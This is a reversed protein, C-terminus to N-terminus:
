TASIGHLTPVPDPRSRGTSALETVARHFAALEEARVHGTRPRPKHWSGKLKVPNPPLSNDQSLYIVNNYIARLVRMTGDATAKGSKKTLEAHRELVLTPTIESLPLDIWERLQREIADRYSAASRPKM